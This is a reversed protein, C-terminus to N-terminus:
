GSRLYRTWRTEPCDTLLLASLWVSTDESAPIWWRPFYLLTFIKKWILTLVFVSTMIQLFNLRFFVFVLFGTKLIFDLLKKLIIHLSSDGISAFGVVPNETPPPSSFYSELTFACQVEGPGLVLPQKQETRVAQSLHATLTFVAGAVVPMLEQAAEDDLIKFCFSLGCHPGQKWSTM